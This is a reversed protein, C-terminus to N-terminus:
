QRQFEFSSRYQAKLGALLKETIPLSIEYSGEVYPGAVYPAAVFLLHDFRRNRNRDVPVIALEKYAPCKAFVGEMREGQRRRLREADLAKCYANRTAAELSGAAVFLGAVTAQRDVQRDWLLASTGSNPHAGNSDFELSGELSILRQTEGEVDWSMSYSHQRFPYHNARASRVDDSADDRARQFAKGMDAQLYARLGGIADAKAAWEYSFELQSTVRETKVSKATATAAPVLVVAFLLARKM